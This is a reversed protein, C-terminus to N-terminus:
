NAYSRDLHAIVFDAEDLGSKPESWADGEMMADLHLMIDEPSPAGDQPAVWGNILGTFIRGYHGRMVSFAEGSITCAESALFTVLAAAYDPTHANPYRPARSMAQAIFDADVRDASPTGMRGGLANPLICNIGIEPPAEQVLVRMLGIIGAKAAGYNARYPNGFIGSQSSTFIIRGYGQAKMQRYAPQTVFFAGKLHVAFVSEIDEESMDEFLANRQNGANNVVIDIRGFADLAAQTIAIGGERSAVSDSNAIAQGGAQRIEQAVQEALDASQSDGRTDGGLDNVVVAAGRRALSHAYASGLGGAAGTVIAVRGSLDIARSL